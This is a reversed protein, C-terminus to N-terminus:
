TGTSTANFIFTAGAISPVEQELVAVLSPLNKAVSASRAQASPTQLDIFWARISSVMEKGLEGVDLVVVDSGYVLRHVCSGGATPKTFKYYRGGATRTRGQHLVINRIDRYDEAVLM